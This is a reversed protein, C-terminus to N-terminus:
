LAEVKLSARRILQDRHSKCVHISGEGNRPYLKWRAVRRCRPGRIRRGYSPDHHECQAM